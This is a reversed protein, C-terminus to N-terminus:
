ENYKLLLIVENSKAENGSNFYMDADEDITLELMGMFDYVDEVSGFKVWVKSAHEVSSRLIASDALVKEFDYYDSHIDLQLVGKDEFFSQLTILPSFDDGLARYTIIENDTM